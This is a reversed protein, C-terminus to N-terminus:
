YSYIVVVSGLREWKQEDDVPSEFRKRFVMDSGIVRRVFIKGSYGEGREM